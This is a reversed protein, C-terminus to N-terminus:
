DQRSHDQAFLYALAPPMKHPLQFFNNLCISGWSM